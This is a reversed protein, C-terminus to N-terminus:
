PGRNPSYWVNRSIYFYPDIEGPKSFEGVKLESSSIPNPSYVWDPLRLSRHISPGLGSGERGQPIGM